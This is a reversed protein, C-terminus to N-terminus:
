HRGMRLIFNLIGIMVELNMCFGAERQCGSQSLKRCVEASEDFEVLVQRSNKKGLAKGMEPSKYEAQFVQTGFVQM